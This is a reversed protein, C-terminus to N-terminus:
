ELRLNEQIRDLEGEFALLREYFVAVTKQKAEASTGALNTVGCIFAIHGAIRQGLAQIRVLRTELTLPPIFWSNAVPLVVPPTTPSATKAKTRM